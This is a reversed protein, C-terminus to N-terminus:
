LTVNVNHLGCTRTRYRGSDLFKHPYRNQEWLAPNCFRANEIFRFILSKQNIPVLQSPWLCAGYYGSSASPNSRIVVPTRTRDSGCNTHPHFDQVAWRAGLEIFFLFPPLIVGLCFSSNFFFIRCSTFVPRACVVIKIEEIIRLSFGLKFRESESTLVAIHFKRTAGPIKSSFM